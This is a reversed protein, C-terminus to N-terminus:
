LPAECPLGHAQAVAPCTVKGDRVNIGGRLAPQRRCAEELGYDALLEVFRQTANTL